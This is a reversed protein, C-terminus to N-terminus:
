RRAVACSHDELMEGSGWDGVAPDAHDDLLVFGKTNDAFTEGVLVLTHMGMDNRALEDGDWLVRFPNLRDLNEQNIRIAQYYHGALPEPFPAWADGVRDLNARLVDRVDSRICDIHIHLQNQTRGVASNIALAFDDRSLETALRGGVDKRARWAADWYNTADPALISPDEIGGIRATPILLFQAVGRIDKLVVFGHGIGQSLDISTCPLPDHAAEEHPVCQEHVINWLASPDAAFGVVPALAVVPLCLWALGPSM